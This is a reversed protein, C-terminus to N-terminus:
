QKTLVEWEAPIKCVEGICVLWNAPTCQLDIHLRNDQSQFWVCSELEHRNTPMDEATPAWLMVMVTVFWLAALSLLLTEITRQFSNNM